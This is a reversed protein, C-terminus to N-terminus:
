AGTDGANPTSNEAAFLRRLMDYAQCALEKRLAQEAEAVMPCRAGVYRGSPFITKTRQHARSSNKIYAQNTRQRAISYIESYQLLDRARIRKLQQEKGNQSCVLSFQLTEELTEVALKKLTLTM